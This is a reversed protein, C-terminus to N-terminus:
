RIKSIYVDSRGKLERLEDDSIRRTVIVPMGIANRYEISIKKKSDSFGKKM